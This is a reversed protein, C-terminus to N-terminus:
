ARGPFLDAMIASNGPYPLHVIDVGAMSKFLEGALPPMTGVGSSGYSYKGPNAKLLAILEGLDKAPVDPNAVLVLPFSGALTVPILDKIPDYPLNKYVLPNVVAPSVSQFILTYGEPRSRAVANAARPRAGAHAAITGGGGGQNGGAVQQGLQDSLYQATLRAMMDVGGGATLPVVLKIPRNPWAEQAPLSGCAAAILALAGFCRALLCRVSLARPGHNMDMTKRGPPRPPNQRVVTMRRVQQRRLKRSTSARRAHAQSSQLPCAAMTWWPQRYRDILCSPFMDVSFGLITSDRSSPVSQVRLPRRGNRSYRSRPSASAVSPRMPPVMPRAM